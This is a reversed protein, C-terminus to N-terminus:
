AAVGAVGGEDEGGIGAGACGAGGVGRGEVWLAAGDGGDVTGLFNEVQEEDGLAFFGAVFEGAAFAREIEEDGVYVREVALEGAVVAFCELLVEIGDAIGLDLQELGFFPDIGGQGFDIGVM